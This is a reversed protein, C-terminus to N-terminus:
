LISTASAPCLLSSISNSNFSLVSVTRLLVFSAILGPSLIGSLSGIQALQTGANVYVMTGALMGIQSVFFYVPISISTLGMLLNIIFFPFAPVLRLTFLYFAGDKEIGRDIRKLQEGFRNRVQERFIFRSVLMALTAGITSAFSVLFLGWWFGLIAGGALTMIAAGPLSLSTIVIYTVFYILAANIPNDRVEQNLVAQQSKLYDLSLYQGLDFFFFVAVLLMLAFLVLIRSSM